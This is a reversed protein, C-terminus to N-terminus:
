VASSCSNGRRPKASVWILQAVRRKAFVGLVFDGGSARIVLQHHIARYLNLNVQEAAHSVDATFVLGGLLSLFHPSVSMGSFCGMHKYGLSM